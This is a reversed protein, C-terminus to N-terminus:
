CLLVVRPCVGTVQLGVVCVGLCGAPLTDWDSVAKEGLAWAFCGRLGARCEESESGSRVFRALIQWFMGETMPPM